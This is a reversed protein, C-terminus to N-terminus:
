PTLVEGKTFDTCRKEQRRLCAANQQRLVSFTATLELGTPPAMKEDM